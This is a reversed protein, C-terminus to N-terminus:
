SVLVSLRNVGLVGYQKMKKKKEEEKKLLVQLKERDRGQFYRWQCIEVIEGEKSRKRERVDVHVLM